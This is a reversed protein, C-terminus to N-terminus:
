RQATIRSSSNLGTPIAADSAAELRSGGDNDSLSPHQQRVMVIVVSELDYQFLPTDPMGMRPYADIGTHPPLQGVARAGGSARYRVVIYRRVISAIGATAGILYCSRACIRIRAALNHLGRCINLM